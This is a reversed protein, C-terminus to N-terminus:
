FMPAIVSKVFYSKEFNKINDTEIMRGVDVPIYEENTGLTIHNGLFENGPKVILCIGAKNTSYGTVEIEVIKGFSYEQLPGSKGGLYEITVHLPINQTYFELLKENRIIEDIELLNPFLGIYMPFITNNENLEKRYDLVLNVNTRGFFNKMIKKNFEAMEFIKINEDRMHFKKSDNNFFVSIKEEGIEDSLYQELTKKDENTACITAIKIKHGNQSLPIFIHAYTDM